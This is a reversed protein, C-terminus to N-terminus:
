RRTSMGAGPQEARVRTVMWCGHGPRRVTADGAVVDIRNV